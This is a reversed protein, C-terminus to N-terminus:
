AYSVFVVLGSSSNLPLAIKEQAVCENKTILLRSADSRLGKREALESLGNKQM